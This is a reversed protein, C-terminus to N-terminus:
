PLSLDGPLHYKENHPPPDEIMELLGLSKQRTLVIISENETVPSIGEIHLGSNKMALLLVEKQDDDLREFPIAEDQM